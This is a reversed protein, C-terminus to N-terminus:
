KFKRHPSPLDWRAVQAACWTQVQRWRPYLPSKGWPVLPRPYERRGTVKSWGSRGDSTKHTRTLLQGAYQACWPILAHNDGPDIGHLECAQMWLCRSKDKVQKVATEQLGGAQSDGVLTKDPVVEVGKKKLAVTADEILARIAPEGDSRFKIRTYGLWLIHQVVTEIGYWHSGKESVMDAFVSSSGRDKMVLIPTHSKKNSMAESMEANNGDNFFAYDATITNIGDDRTDSSIRSHGDRRGMAAVCYRCWARYPYHSCEHQDIEAQTPQVPRIKTKVDPNEGASDDVQVPIEQVPVSQASTGANLGQSGSSM